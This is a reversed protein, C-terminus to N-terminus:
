YLLFADANDDGLQGLLWTTWSCALSKLTTPKLKGTAHKRQQRVAVSVNADSVYLKGSQAKTV